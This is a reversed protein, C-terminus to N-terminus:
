NYPRQLVESLIIAKRFDANRIEEALYNQEEDSKVPEEFHVLKSPQTLGGERPMLIESSTGSRKVSTQKRVLERTSASASKRSEGSSHVPKSLPRVTQKKSPQPEPAPASKPWNEQPVEDYPKSADRKKNTESIKKYNNYVLWIIAVVVYLVIKLDDM